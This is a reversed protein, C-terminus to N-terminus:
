VQLELTSRIMQAHRAEDEALELYLDRLCTDNVQEAAASYEAAGQQEGAFRQRLATYYNRVPPIPLHEPWYRIGTILFYAAALRKAHRHEDAALGSLVRASFADSRRALAQYCRYDRLEDCIFGQLQEAYVESEEGLCSPEAVTYQAQNAQCPEQRGWTNDPQAPMLNAQQNPLALANENEGYLEIPCNEGPNPMVRRWVRKFLERDSGYMGPDPGGDYYRDQEM